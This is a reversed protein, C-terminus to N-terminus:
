AIVSAFRTSAETQGIGRLTILVKRGTLDGIRQRPWFEGAREGGGLIRQGPEVLPEGFARDAVAKDGAGVEGVGAGAQPEVAFEDVEVIENEVVGVHVDAGRGMLEGAGMGHQAGAAADGLCFGVPRQRGGPEGAQAAAAPLALPLFPLPSVPLFAFPLSRRPHRRILLGLRIEVRREPDDLGIRPEGGGEGRDVGRIGPRLPREGALAAALGPAPDAPRRDRSPRPRM